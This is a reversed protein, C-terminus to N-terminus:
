FPWIHAMVGMLNQKVPYMQFYDQVNLENKKKFLKTWSIM